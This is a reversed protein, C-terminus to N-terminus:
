RNELMEVAKLYNERMFELEHELEKIKKVHKPNDRFVTDIKVYNVVSDKKINETVIEKKYITTEKKFFISLIISIVIFSVIFIKDKLLDTIKGWLTESKKTANVIKQSLMKTALVDIKPKEELAKVSDIEVVEVVKKSVTKKVAKKPAKKTVAPKNKSTKKEM